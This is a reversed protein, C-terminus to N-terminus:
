RLQLVKDIRKKPPIQLKRLPFLRFFRFSCHKSNRIEQHFKQLVAKKGSNLKEQTLITLNNPSLYLLFVTPKTIKLNKNCYAM